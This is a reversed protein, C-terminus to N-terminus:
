AVSRAAMVARRLSALNNLKRRLLAAKIQAVLVPDAKHYPIM